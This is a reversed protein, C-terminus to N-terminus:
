LKGIQSFLEKYESSKKYFVPPYGLDAEIEYDGGGYEKGTWLHIWCDEPLYVSRSRKGEEYIPAAMIDRGLLFQYQIDYCKKDNEYHLFLPRMVPIGKQANEKVVAKTYESLMTYVKSMRAFHLLTEDDSDFQWNEDPRNGEHTRMIPAFAGMEAWRMFLEKNRKLEFLSTYGGIDSHHLGIGSMGMSLAATMVSPLGDDLSWDVNQDGAWMMTTYKQSGTYGARMFFVAEGLMGAEEIAERNVKAWLVPWLNHMLEASVGNHLVADTPLYEGFDAMWGSLGFDLMNTKIVNKYWEFASPNTLDVHGAMFAGMDTIYDLGDKNKVLFDKEEAAAFLSGEVALYPNIYGLFRIGKDRLKQIEKDLNPYLKQDWEWNWMLRKGFYTIRKGEWDQAWVGSVMLGKDLANQLKKLVIDTGGQVGLWVGDYVWDPLEPQRGLLETMDELLELLTNKSGIVLKQPVSWIELEHFDPNKFNFEMYSSGSVHCYYKDSSVFTPQPFYTSYYDGGAGELCDAMFTSYTKKNRGVGQETIFLPFSRCKLNFHSFQEGCGYIHETERSPIRLWIRNINHCTNKFEIILRKNEEYVVVCASYIGNRSFDITTVANDEILEYDTLGIRETMHNEIKFNGLHMKFDADGRGAYIWPQTSTHRIIERNNFFLSFGDSNKEIRM